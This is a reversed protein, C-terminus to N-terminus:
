NKKRWYRAFRPLCEDKTIENYRYTVVTGLPFLTAANAREADTFGSIEFEREVLESAGIKIPVLGKLKLAGLVGELRGKGAQYGVVTGETDYFKKIKLLDNSRKPTWVSSIKRVMIGEGGTDTVENLKQLMREIAEDEFMPLREQELKFDVPIYKMATEFNLGQVFGTIRARVFDWCDIFHDQKRIYMRGDKFLEKYSPVDFCKYQVDNWRADPTESRAISELEEFRGNGLWAEGDLPLGLPLKEVFSDLAMVAKFSRTWLGTSKLGAKPNFAWPVETLPMGRSIGGDWWMRQGDLKVSMYQGGISHKKPNYDEALLVGERKTANVM